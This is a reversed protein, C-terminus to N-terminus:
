KLLRRSGTESWIRAYWQHLEEMWPPMPGKVGLAKGQSSFLCSKLTLEVEGRVDDVVAGIVFLGDSGRLAQNRPSDGCRVTISTPTKEVVEFHDVICTGKEYKSQSLQQKTWLHTSTEPGYYKWQLYRRQIEFGAGSWVGRCYELALDGPNKLLEPRIKDLPLRKICIDQTAPNASPNYRKFLKSTWIPDAAALPSIVPNKAALYAALSTSGILSSFAAKAILGM